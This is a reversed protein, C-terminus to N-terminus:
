STKFYATNKIKDLFNNKYSVLINQLFSTTLLFFGASFAIKRDLSSFKTERYPNFRWILFLSIYVKIFSDLYHIYKINDLFTIGMYSVLIIFYSLYIYFDFIKEQFKLSFPNM